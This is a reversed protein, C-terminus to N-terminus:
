KNKYKTVDESSMHLRKYAKPTTGVLKCFSTYFSQRNSFGVMDSVEEICLDQYKSDELITMAEDIRYKNIFSTYNMHFRINIAASVYRTNTGLDAALQKASYNKDRYKKKNVIISIIKEHLRNVVQPNIIDCYAPVNETNGVSVGEKKIRNDKQKVDMAVLKEAFICNKKL